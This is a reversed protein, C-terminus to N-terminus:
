AAPEPVGLAARLDAAIADRPLPSEGIVVLVTDRAEGEGWPRDFYANLRPGVAQIALRM